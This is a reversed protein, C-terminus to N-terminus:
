CNMFTRYERYNIINFLKRGSICVFRGIIILLWYTKDHVELSSVDDVLHILHTSYRRTSTHQEGAEVEVVSQSSQDAARVKGQNLPLAVTNLSPEHRFTTTARRIATFISFEVRFSMWRPYETFQISSHPFLIRPNILKKRMWSQVKEAVFRTRSYYDCHNVTKPLTEHTPSSFFGLRITFEYIAIYLATFVFLTHSHRM